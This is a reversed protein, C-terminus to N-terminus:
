SKEMVNDHEIFDGTAQRKKRIPTWEWWPKKIGTKAEHIIAAFTDWVCPDHKQGTIEQLKKYLDDPEAKVLVAISHIGLLALDARVAKGVNMLNLLEDASKNQM